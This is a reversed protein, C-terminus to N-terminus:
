ASPTKSVSTCRRVSPKPASTAMAYRQPASTLVTPKWTPSTTWTVSSTEAPSPESISCASRPSGGSDRQSLWYGISSAVSGLDSERHVKGGNGVKSGYNLMAGQTIDDPGHDLYFSGPALHVDLATAYRPMLLNADLSLTGGAPARTRVAKGIANIEEAAREVPDFVSQYMMEQANYRVASYFRYYPIPDMLKEIETGTQPPKGTAKEVEPAITTEYHHQLKPRMERDAYARLVSVFGQRARENHSPRYAEDVDQPDSIPHIRANM